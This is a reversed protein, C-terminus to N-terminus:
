VKTYKCFQLEYLVKNTALCLTRRNNEMTFRDIIIGLFLHLVSITPAQHDNMLSM